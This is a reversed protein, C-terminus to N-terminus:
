GLGGCSSCCWCWNEGFSVFNAVNGISFLTVGIQWERLKSCHLFVVCTHACVAFPRRSCPKNSVALALWGLPQLSVLHGAEHRKGHQARGHCGTQQAGDEDCQDGPQDHHQGGPLAAPLLTHKCAHLCATTCCLLQLLCNQNRVLNTCVGVM